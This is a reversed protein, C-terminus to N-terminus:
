IPLQNLVYEIHHNTGVKRWTTANGTGVKRHACEQIYFDGWSFDVGMYEPRKLLDSCLNYYQEWGHTKVSRGRVILWYNEHTYRLSASMTIIRPDMETIETNAVTYDSYIPIRKLGNGLLDNFLNWEIRNIRDVTNAGIQSLNEPFSTGSVILNRWQDLNPLKINIVSELTLLLLDQDEDKINKLDILLDVNDFEVEMSELFSTLEINFDKKTLDSLEIRLCIGNRDLNQIKKVVTQYVIMKSLTIVPIAHLQRDRFDQFLYEMHHLGNEMTRDGDIYRSDVFFPTDGIADFIKKGMKELHSDISKGEADDEYNWPISPIEFLPSIKKLNEKKITELGKFEGEKAKLIPVYLLENKM